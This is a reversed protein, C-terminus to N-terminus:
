CASTHCSTLRLGSENAATSMNPRSALHERLLAAVPPPVIAPTADLAITMTTGDDSINDLRLRSVRTVPQAYLLLLIGIIRTALPTTSARFCDDLLELRRAQDLVPRTRSQYCPFRVAPLRRTSGAWRVFTRATYRTTTGTSLWADVDAQRLQRYPVARGDLFALFQGGVTIQQEAVYVTTRTLRDHDALERMRRLHHWTAFGHLLQRAPPPYAPLHAGLWDQFANLDRNMPPLVGHRVLLDRLHQAM